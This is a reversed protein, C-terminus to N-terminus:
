RLPIGSRATRASRDQKSDLANDNTPPFRNGLWNKLAVSLLLSNSPQPLPLWCEAPDLRQQTHPSKHRRVACNRTHSPPVLGSALHQRVVATMLEDLENDDLISLEQRGQYTTARRCLRQIADTRLLETEPNDHAHRALSRLFASRLNEAGFTSNRFVWAISSNRGTPRASAYSPVCTHRWSPTGVHRWHLGANGGGHAPSRATSTSPVTGGFKPCDESDACCPVSASTWAGPHGTLPIPSSKTSASWAVSSPAATRPWILLSSGAKGFTNLPSM